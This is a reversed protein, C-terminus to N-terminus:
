AIALDPSLGATMPSILMVGSVSIKRTSSMM